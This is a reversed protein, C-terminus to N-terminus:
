PWISSARGRVTVESHRPNALFDLYHASMRVHLASSTAVTSVLHPIASHYSPHYSAAAHAAIVVFVAPLYLRSRPSCVAQLSAPRASENHYNAYGTAKPM